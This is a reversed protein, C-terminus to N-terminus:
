SETEAKMSTQPLIAENYKSDFFWQAIIAKIANMGVDLFNTDLSRVVENIYQENYLSRIIVSHYVVHNRETLEAPPLVGSIPPIRQIKIVAFELFITIAEHYDLPLFGGKNDIIQKVADDIWKLLCDICIYVDQDKEDRYMLQTQNQQCFNCTSTIALMSTM